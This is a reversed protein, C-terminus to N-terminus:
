LLSDRHIKKIEELIKQLEKENFEKIFDNLEKKLDNTKQEIKAKTLIKLYQNEKHFTKEIENESIIKYDVKKEELTVRIKELASKPFGVQQNKLKYGFLYSLIIADDDFAYCFLNGERICLKHDM